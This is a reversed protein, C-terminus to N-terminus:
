VLYIKQIKNLTLMLLIFFHQIEQNLRSLTPVSIYIASDCADVMMTSLQLNRLLFLLYQFYSPDQVAARHYSYDSRINVPESDTM